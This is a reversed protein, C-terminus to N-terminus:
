AAHRAGATRARAPPEAPKRSGEITERRVLKNFRSLKGTATKEQYLFALRDEDFKNFWREWDIHELRSEPRDPFDIRLVGTSGRVISAVGGREDAWNRIEAHNTTVLSAVRSRSSAASSRSKGAM